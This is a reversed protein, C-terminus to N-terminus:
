AKVRSRAHKPAVAIRAIVVGRDGGSQEVSAVWLEIVAAIQLNKWDRM